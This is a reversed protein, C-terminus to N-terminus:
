SARGIETTTKRMPVQQVTNCRLHLRTNRLSSYSALHWCSVGDRLLNRAQQTILAPTQFQVLGTVRARDAHRLGRQLFDLIAHHLFARKQALEPEPQTQRCLAKVLQLVLCRADLGSMM